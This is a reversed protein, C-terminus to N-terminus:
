TEAPVDGLGILLKRLLAALKDQEAGTLPSLLGIGRDLHSVVVEDVLERGRDTLSILVSRRNDPDIERTVLDRALLRDVRNTIAGSTVMASEVLAGATLRYPPGARRLTALIDFEWAQLDHAAFNDGLGREVLGHLGQRGATARDRIAEILLDNVLKIVSAEQAQEVEDQQDLTLSATDFSEIKDATTSAGGGGSLADLTDGAVGYHTRIFKDIDKEDALVLEISLCTLLRLEDFASLEGVNVVHFKKDWTEHSFGRKPIRRFLPMQGGEFTFRPKKAGASAWQGKHGRSATKGHGSGVGRGVRKKGKRRKVGQHVTSLDM